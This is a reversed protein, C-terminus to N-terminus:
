HGDHEADWTEDLPSIIDGIITVGNKLYGFLDKSETSKNGEFPVLQAVPEGRKTIIIIKREQQVQDMLRLCKAKFEGASITQKMINVMTM